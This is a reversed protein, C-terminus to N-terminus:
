GGGPGANKHIDGSEDHDCRAELRCAVHNDQHQRRQEQCHGNRRWYEEQLPLAYRKRHSQNDGHAGGDACQSRNRHQDSRRDRLKSLLYRIVLNQDLAM